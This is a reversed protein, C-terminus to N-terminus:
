VNKTEQDTTRRSYLPLDYDGKFYSMGVIDNAYYHQLADTRGSDCLVVLNPLNHYHFTGLENSVNDM